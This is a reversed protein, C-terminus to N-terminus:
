KIFASRLFLSNTIKKVVIRIGSRSVRKEFVLDAKEHRDKFREKKKEM